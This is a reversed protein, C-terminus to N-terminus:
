FDYIQHLSQTCEMVCWVSESTHYVGTFAEWSPGQFYCDSDTKSKKAHYASNVCNAGLVYAIRVHYPPKTGELTGPFIYELLHPDGQTGFDGPFLLPFGRDLRVGKRKAVMSTPLDLM